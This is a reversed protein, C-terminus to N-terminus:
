AKATVTQSHALKLGTKGLHDLQKGTRADRMITIVGPTGDAQYYAVEAVRVLRGAPTVYLGPALADAM